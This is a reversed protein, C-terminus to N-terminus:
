AGFDRSNNRARTIAIEDEHTDISTLLTQMETLVGHLDSLNVALLDVLNEAEVRAARKDAERRRRTM